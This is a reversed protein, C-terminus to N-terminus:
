MYDWNSDGEIFLADKHGVLQHKVTINREPLIYRIKSTKARLEPVLDEITTIPDTCEQLFLIAKTLNNFGREDVDLLYIISSMHNDTILRPDSNYKVMYEPM